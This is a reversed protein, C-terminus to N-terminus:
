TAPPAAMLLFVLVAASSDNQLLCNGFRRRAGRWGAPPLLLLSTFCCRPLSPALSNPCARIATPPLSAMFLSATDLAAPFNRTIRGTIKRIVKLRTSHVSPMVVIVIASALPSENAKVLRSSFLGRSVRRGARVVGGPPKERNSIRHPSGPEAPLKAFPPLM